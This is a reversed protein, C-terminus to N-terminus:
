EKGYGFDLSLGVGEIGAPCDAAGQPLSSFFSGDEFSEKIGEVLEDELTDADDGGPMVVTHITSVVLLCHQGQPCNATTDIINDIQVTLPYQFLIKNATITTAQILGSKLASGQPDNMVTSADLNCDNQISYTIPVSLNETNIIFIHHAIKISNTNHYEDNM